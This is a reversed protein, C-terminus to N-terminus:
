GRNFRPALVAILLHELVFLKRLDTVELWQVSCRSKIFARVENRSQLGFAESVYRVFNDDGRYALHNEM